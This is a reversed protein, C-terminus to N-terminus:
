LYGFYSLIILMNYFSKSEYSIKGALQGTTEDQEPCNAKNSLISVSQFQVSFGTLNPKFDDRFAKSQVILYQCIKM